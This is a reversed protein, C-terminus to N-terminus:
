DRYYPIDLEVKLCFMEAEDRWLVGEVGRLVGSREHMRRGRGVLVFALSRFVLEDSIRQGVLRYVQPLICRPLIPLNECLYESRHRRIQNPVPLSILYTKSWKKLKWVAETYKCKAQVKQKVM